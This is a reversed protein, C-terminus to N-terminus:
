MAVKVGPEKEAIRLGLRRAATPVISVQLPGRGFRIVTGLQSMGLFSFARLSRHNTWDISALFSWAGAVRNKLAYALLAAVLRKGRHEPATWANYVFATGDPMDVSTGLHETRSFNDKGDIAQKAFWTFSVVRNEHFATVLARRGDSLDQPDGVAAPIRKSAILEKLEAKDISRIEYGSTRSRYRCENAPLHMLCTIDVIGARRIGRYLLRVPAFLLRTNM